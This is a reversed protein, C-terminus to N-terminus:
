APPSLPDPPEGSEEWWKSRRSRAWGVPVWGTVMSRLAAPDALAQLVHGTITVALLIALWDHVFTAGTRWTLPFPHFWRMIAGTALMSVMAGLVFAANLKQGANFKGVPVLPDRGLRRLWRWDDEDFRALRRADGRLAAGWRGLWGVVLPLPLALGAVVHVDRVLTRRGVIASLGGVYLVAATALLVGFLAATAWHVAREVGDFRHLRGVTEPPRKTM